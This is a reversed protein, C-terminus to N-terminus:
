LARADVSLATDKIRQRMDIDTLLGAQAGIAALVSTANITGAKLATPLDLGALMAWTVGTCFADGAGTADIVKAGPVTPCHYLARGDSATCGRPGDSVCVVRVGAKLLTQIAGKVSTKQTFAFAEEKNLQLFTTHKLLAANDPGHIGQALQRGGPNWTLGIKPNKKLVETVDDMIICSKEHIHNFVIWDAKAAGDKDFTADHLHAGAGATYLISREGSETNLIISFASTENEIITASAHDVKEKRLNELIREGWQDSGIIGCFAASCGLRSLGVATNTAGGGCAETVDQVRVKHGVPLLIAQTKEDVKLSGQAPTVFLDVTAGGITLVRPRTM